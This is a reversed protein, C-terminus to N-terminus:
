EFILVVETGQKDGALESPRKGAYQRLQDYLSGATMGSCKIDFISRGIYVFSIDSGLPGTVALYSYLRAGDATMFSAHLSSSLASAVVVTPDEIFVNGDAEFRVAQGCVRVRFNM